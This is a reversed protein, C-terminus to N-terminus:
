TVYIIDIRLIRWTVFITSYFVVREHVITIMYLIAFCLKERTSICKSQRHHFHIASDISINGVWGWYNLLEETVHVPNM